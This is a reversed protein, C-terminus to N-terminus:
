GKSKMFIVLATFSLSLGRLGWNPLFKIDGECQLSSNGQWFMLTRVLNSGATSLFTIVGQSTNAQWLFTLSQLNSSNKKLPNLWLKLFIINKKIYEVQIESLNKAVDGVQRLSSYRGPFLLYRRRIPIVPWFSPLLTTTEPEKECCLFHFKAPFLTWQHQETHWQPHAPSPM